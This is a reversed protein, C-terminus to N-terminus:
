AELMSQPSLELLTAQRQLFQQKEDAQFSRGCTDCENETNAHDMFVKINFSLSDYREKKARKKAFDKEAAEVLQSIPENAQDQSSIM